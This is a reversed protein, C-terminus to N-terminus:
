QFKSFSFLITLSFWSFNGCLSLVWSGQHLSCLTFASFHSFPTLFPARKDCIAGEPVGPSGETLPSVHGSSYMLILIVYLSWFGLLSSLFSWYWSSSHLHVLFIHTRSSQHPCHHGGCTIICHRSSTYSWPFSTEQWQIRFVSFYSRHTYSLSFAPLPKKLTRLMLYILHYTYYNSSKAMGCAYMKIVM